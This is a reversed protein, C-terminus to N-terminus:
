PKAQGARNSSGYWDCWCADVQTLDIVTNAASCAENKNPAPHSFEDERVQKLDFLKATRM